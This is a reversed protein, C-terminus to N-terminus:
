YCALSLSRDLLALRNELSAWAELPIYEILFLDFYVILFFVQFFWPVRLSYLQEQIQQFFYKMVWKILLLQFREQLYILPKAYLCNITSHLWWKVFLPFIFQFDPSALNKPKFQYLSFFKVKLDAQLPLFRRQKSLKMLTSAILTRHKEIVAM